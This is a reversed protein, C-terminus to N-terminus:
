AAAEDKRKRFLSFFFFAVAALLALKVAMALLGFFMGLLPLLLTAFLKLLVVGAVGAVTLTAFTKM